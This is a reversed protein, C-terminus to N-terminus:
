RPMPPCPVCPPASSSPPACPSSAAGCSTVYQKSHPFSHLDARFFDRRRSGEVSATASRGAASSTREAAGHAVAPLRDHPEGLAEEAPPFIAERERDARHLLPQLLRINPPLELLAHRSALPDRLDARARPLVVYRVGLEDEAHAVGLDSNVPLYEGRERLLCRRGMAGRRGGDM